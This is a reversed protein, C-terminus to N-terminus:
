KTCAARRPAFRHKLISGTLEIRTERCNGSVQAGDFLVQANQPPLCAASRDITGRCGTILNGIYETWNKAVYPLTKAATLTRDHVLYATQGIFGRPKAGLRTAVRKVSNGILGLM